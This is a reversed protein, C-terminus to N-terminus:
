RWDDHNAVNGVKGFIDVGGGVWPDDYEGYYVGRQSMLDDYDHLREAMSGMPLIVPDGDSNRLIPEERIAFWALGAAIVRDGHAKGKDTESSSRASPMHVIKGNRWEYEGCEDLLEKSHPIFSNEAIAEQMGEFLSLRADDNTMWFGPKKTEKKLGVIEVKRRYVPEYYLTEILEKMFPGGFNAEPIILAGHFWHGLAACVYAFKTPNVGASAWEAVQEGTLRNVVCAVSNSSYEGGQGLAIDAGLVYLGHQINGDLNPSTWLKLEGSDSEIIYPRRMEATEADFILRGRLTPERQHEDRARQVIEGDFVKAASGRPDRDLEQAIGRPTSGPRLCQANYWINRTKGEIKFGRRRLQAHQKKLLTFDTSSLKNGQRPDVEIVSGNVFRYLKRGQTPNDRWDLVIKVANGEQTAADFYAGTDGLYTSVLFRCNTVHATSNLAAYDEGTKFAALEDLAFCSKRGGRGVDGTASYGVISAGNAPNILSHESLNRHRSLDFGEPILWSPMRQIAWVVKWMLTDPDRLSDVLRENRSVLGASFMKDRLWRRLFVGLYMWTAGQGRSKDVVVDIPEESRESETIARDMAVIGGDQHPWTCFPRIKHLSRPEFCWMAFNFFFLVDDFCAQKLDRQLGKDTM